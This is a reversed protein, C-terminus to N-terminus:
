SRCVYVVVPVQDGDEEELLGELVCQASMLTRTYNSAHAHVTGPLRDKLLTKYMHLLSKGLSNMQTCGKTTLHGFIGLGSDRTTIGDM